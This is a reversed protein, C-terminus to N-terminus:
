KSLKITNSAIAMEATEMLLVRYYKLGAKIKAVPQKFKFENSSAAPGMVYGITTYTKGDTSGQVEWYKTEAQTSSWNILLTSKEIKATFGDIKMETSAAGSQAFVGANVSLILVLTYFFQKM